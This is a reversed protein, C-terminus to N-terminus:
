ERSQGWKGKGFPAPLFPPPPPWPPLFPPLGAPAFPPFFHALAQYRALPPGTAAVQANRARQSQLIGRRKCRASLQGSRPSNASGRPGHARGSHSLRLKSGGRGLGLAQPDESSNGRTPPDPSRRKETRSSAASPDAQWPRAGATRRDTADRERVQM